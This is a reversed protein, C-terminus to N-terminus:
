IGWDYIRSGCNCYFRRLFFLFYGRLPCQISGRKTTCLCFKKFTNLRSKLVGLESIKAQNQVKEAELKQKPVSELEILRDVLPQWDFGSALGTLRMESGM